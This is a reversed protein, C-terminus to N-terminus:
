YSSFQIQLTEFRIRKYINQNMSVGTIQSFRSHNQGGSKICCETMHNYRVDFEETIFAATQFLPLHDCPICAYGTSVNQYKEASEM